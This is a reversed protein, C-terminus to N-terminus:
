GTEPFPSVSRRTSRIWASFEYDFILFRFDSIAYHGQAAVSAARAM